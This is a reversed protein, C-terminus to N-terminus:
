QPNGEHKAFKLRVYSNAVALIELASDCNMEALAQQDADTDFEVSVGSKRGQDMYLSLLALEDRSLLAVQRGELKKLAELRPNVAHRGTLQEPDFIFVRPDATKEASLQTAQPLKELDALSQTVTVTRFGLTQVDEIPNGSLFSKGKGAGAFAFRVDFPKVAIREQIHADLARWDSYSLEQDYEMASKAYTDARTRVMTAEHQGESHEIAGLAQLLKDRVKLKDIADALAPPLAARGLERWPRMQADIDQQEILMLDKAAEPSLGSDYRSLMVLDTLAGSHRWFDSHEDENVQGVLFKPYYVALAKQHEQANDILSQELRTSTM